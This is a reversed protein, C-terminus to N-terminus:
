PQPLPVHRGRVEHLLEVHNDRLDGRLGTSDLRLTDSEITVPEETSFQRTALAADLASSRVTLPAGGELPHSLLVNDRLQLLDEAGTHTGHLTGRQASLTWPAASADFWVVTPQTLDAHDDSPYHEVRLAQLSYLPSDDASFSVRQMAGIFYDFEAGLLAASEAEEDPSPESGPFLWLVAGLCLLAAPLLTLLLRRTLM